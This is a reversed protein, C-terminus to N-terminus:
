LTTYYLMIYKLIPYYIITRIYHLKPGDDEDVDGFGRPPKGSLTNHHFVM